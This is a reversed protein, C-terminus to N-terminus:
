DTLSWYRKTQKNKTYLYVNEAHPQLVRGDNQLEKAEKRINSLIMFDQFVINESNFCVTKNNQSTPVFLSSKRKVLTDNFTQFNKSLM